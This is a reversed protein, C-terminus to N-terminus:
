FPDDDYSTWMKKKNPFSNPFISFQEYFKMLMKTLNSYFILTSSGDQDINNSFTSRTSLTWFYQCTAFEEIRVFSDKAQFLQLFKIMWLSQFINGASSILNFFLKFPSIVVKQFPHDLLRFLISKQIAKNRTM